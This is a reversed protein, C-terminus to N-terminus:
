KLRAPIINFASRYEGESCRLVLIYSGEKAQNGNTNRQDWSWEKTEGPSLSIIVQLATPSFVLKGDAAVIHWPASNPLTFEKVGINKIRFEVPMGPYYNSIQAPKGLPPPGINVGGFMFLEVVGAVVEIEGKGQAFGPEGAKGWRALLEYNGAQQFFTVLEGNNDTEGLYDPDYLRVRSVPHDNEDTVKIVVTESVRAQEPAQVILRGHVKEGNGAGCASLLLPLALLVVGIAVSLRKM